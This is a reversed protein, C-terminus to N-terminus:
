DSPLLDQSQNATAMVRRRTLLDFLERGKEKSVLVRQPSLFEDLYKRFAPQRRLQKLESPSSFELVIGEAIRISPQKLILAKTHEPIPKQVEREILEILRFRDGSHFHLARKTLPYRGPSNPRLYMELEWLLELHDPLFGALQDNRVLGLAELGNLASQDKQTLLKNYKLKWLIKKRFVRM